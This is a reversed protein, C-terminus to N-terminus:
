SLTLTLDIYINYLVASWFFFDFCVLCQDAREFIIVYREHM